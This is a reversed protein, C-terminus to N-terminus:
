KPSSTMSSYGVPDPSSRVSASIASSMRRRSIESKRTPSSPRRGQKPRTSFICVSGAQFSLMRKWSYKWPSSPAPRPAECWVPHVPITASMILRLPPASIRVSASRIPPGPSSAPAHASRRAPAAHVPAARGRGDQIVGWTSEPVENWAGALDGLPESVVIRTEESLEHLIPNDPYQERLTHVSTSYFLSRSSGESSYRFSWVRNGDTTAVTM